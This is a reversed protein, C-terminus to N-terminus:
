VIQLHRMTKSICTHHNLKHTVKGPSHSALIYLELNNRPTDTLTSRPSFLMQIPLSLLASEGGSLTGVELATTTTVPLEWVM